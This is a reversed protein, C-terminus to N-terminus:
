IAKLMMQCTSTGFRQDRATWVECPVRGASNNRDPSAQLRFRREEECGQRPRSWKASAIPVLQVLEINSEIQYSNSHVCWYMESWTCNSSLIGFCIMILIMIPFHFMAKLNTWYLFVNPCTTVCTVFWLYWLNIMVSFISHHQYGLTYTFSTSNWSSRVLETYSLIWSYSEFWCVTHTTLNM